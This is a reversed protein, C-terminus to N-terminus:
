AGEQTIQIDQHLAIWYELAVKMQKQIQEQAKESHAFKLTTVRQHLPIQEIFTTHQEILNPDHEHQWDSFFDAPTPLLWFDIEANNVQYLRMYGHVQWVYGQKGARQLAEAKCVPFSSMDWSCKTDVVTSAPKDLIDCEGSLIAKIGDIECIVAHQRPLTCKEYIKGRVLGSNHIALSECANGKAMEKSESEKIYGFHVQKMVEFLHSKAGDTLSKTKDDDKKPSGTIKSLSSCRIELNPITM